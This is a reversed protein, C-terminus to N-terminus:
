RSEGQGDPGLSGVEGFPVMHTIAWSVPGELTSLPHVPINYVIGTFGSVLHRSRLEPSVVSLVNESSWVTAMTVSGCM